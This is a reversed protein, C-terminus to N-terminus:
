EGRNIINEKGIEVIDDKPKEELKKPTYNIITQKKLATYIAPAGIFAFASIFLCEIIPLKYYFLSFGIGFTFSVIFNMVWIITNNKVFSLEKIKQMLIFLIISL